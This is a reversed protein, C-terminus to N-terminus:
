EYTENEQSDDVDSGSGRRILRMVRELSEESIRARGNAERDNAVILGPEDVDRLSTMPRMAPNRNIFFQGLRSGMLRPEDMDRLIREVEHSALDAYHEAGMTPFNPKIGYADEIFQTVAHKASIADRDKWTRIHKTESFTPVASKEADPAHVTQGIANVGCVYTQFFSPVVRVLAKEAWRDVAAPLIMRELFRHFSDHVEVIYRDRARQPTPVLVSFGVHTRGIRSSAQIYEAIDSPMGAFFM